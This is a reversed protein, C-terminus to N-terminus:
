TASLLAFFDIRLADAQSLSMVPVLTTGNLKWYSIVQSGNSLDDQLLDYSSLLNSATTIVTDPDPLNKETFVSPDQAFNYSEIFNGSVIDYRLLRLPLTPDNFRYINKSEQIPTSNFQLKTAFDQATNLALLNPPPKPMFYVNASPSAAPIDGSITQLQFTLKASPTAVAPFSLEPLKGFAHNPPPAQPPFISFFM